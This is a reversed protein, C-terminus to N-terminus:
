ERFMVVMIFMIDILVVLSLSFSTEFTTMGFFNAVTFLHSRVASDTIPVLINPSIQFCLRCNEASFLHSRMASHNVTVVRPM